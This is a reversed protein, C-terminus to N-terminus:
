NFGLKWYDAKDIYMYQFIERRYGIELKVSERASSLM